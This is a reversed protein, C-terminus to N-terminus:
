ELTKHEECFYLNGDHFLKVDYAIIYVKEEYTFIINTPEGDIEEVKYESVIMKIEQSHKESLERSPSYYSVFFIYCLVLLIIMSMLYCIISHKNVLHVQVKSSNDMNSNKNQEISSAKEGKDSFQVSSLNPGQMVKQEVSNQELQKELEESNHQELIEINKQFITNKRKKSIKEIEIKSFSFRKVFWIFCITTIVVMVMFAAILVQFGLTNKYANNINVYIKEIFFFICLFDFGFYLIVGAIKASLMLGKTATPRRDKDAFFFASILLLFVM